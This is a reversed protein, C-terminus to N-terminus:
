KFPALLILYQTHSAAGSALLQGIHSMLDLRLNTPIRSAAHAIFEDNGTM